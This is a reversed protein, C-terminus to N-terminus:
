DEYRVLKERVSRRFAISKRQSLAVKEEETIEDAVAGNGRLINQKMEEIQRNVEKYLGELSKKIKM